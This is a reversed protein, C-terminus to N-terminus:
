SVCYHYFVSYFNGIFNPGYSEPLVIFIMTSRNFFNQVWRNLSKQKREVCKWSVLGRQHWGYNQYTDRRWYWRRQMAWGTSPSQTFAYQSRIQVQPYQELAGNDLMCHILDHFKDNEYGHTMECIYACAAVQSSLPRQSTPSRTGITTTTLCVATSAVSQQWASGTTICFINISRYLPIFTVKCTQSM